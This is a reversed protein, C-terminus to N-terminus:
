EALGLDVSTVGVTIIAASRSFKSVLEAAAPDSRSELYAHQHTNQGISRTELYYFLTM